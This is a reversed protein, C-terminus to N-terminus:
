LSPNALNWQICVTDSVSVYIIYLTDVCLIYFFRDLQVVVHVHLNAQEWKGIIHNCLIIYTNCVEEMSKLHLLSHEGLIVITGNHVAHYAEARHTTNVAFAEVSYSYNGAHKYLHTSNFDSHQEVASNDGYDYAYLVQFLQMSSNTATLDPQPVFTLNGTIYTNNTSNTIPAPSPSPSLLSTNRSSNYRHQDNYLEMGVKLGFNGALLFVFVSKESPDFTLFFAM